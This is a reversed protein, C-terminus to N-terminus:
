RLAGVREEISATELANASEGFKRAVSCCCVCGFTLSAKRYIARLGIGPIGRVDVDDSRGAPSM